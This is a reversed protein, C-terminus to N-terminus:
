HILRSYEEGSLGELWERAKDLRNQLEQPIPKGQEKYWESAMSSAMLNHFGTNFTNDDLTKSM